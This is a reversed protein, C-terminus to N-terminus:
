RQTDEQGEKSALVRETRKLWSEADARTPGGHNVHAFASTILDYGAQLAVQLEQERRCASCIEATIDVYKLDARTHGCAMPKFEDRAWLAGATFIDIWPKSNGPSTTNLWHEYAQRARAEFDDTM